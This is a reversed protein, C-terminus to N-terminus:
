PRQAYAAIETFTINYNRLSIRDSDPRAGVVEIYILQRQSDPIFVYGTGITRRHHTKTPLYVILRLVYWQRALYDNTTINTPDTRRHLTIDLNGDAAIQLRESDTTLNEGRFRCFIYRPQRGAIFHATICTRYRHVAIDALYADLATVIQRPYCTFQACSPSHDRPTDKGIGVLHTGRAYDIRNHNSTIKFTNYTNAFLTTINPKRVDAAPNGM